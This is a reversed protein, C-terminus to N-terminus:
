EHISTFNLGVGWSRMSLDLATLLEDKYVHSNKKDSDRSNRTPIKRM